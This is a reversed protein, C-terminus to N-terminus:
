QSMGASVSGVFVKIVGDRHLDILRRVSAAQGTGLELNIICNTDLTLRLM